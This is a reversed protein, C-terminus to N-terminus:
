IPCFMADPVFIGDRTLAAMLWNAWFELIVFKSADTM